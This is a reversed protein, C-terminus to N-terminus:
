KRKSKIYEAFSKVEDWMEETVEGDGGFLAVKLQEETQESSKAAPKKENGLLYDVTVNFYSAIKTLTDTSLTKNRGMKLDSLPARSVKAEKCMTTININKQECLISIKQYLEVM